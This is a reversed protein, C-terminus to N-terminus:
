GERLEGGRLEGQRVSVPAGSTRLVSMVVRESTTSDPPTECGDLERSSASRSEV